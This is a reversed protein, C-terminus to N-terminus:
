EYNNEKRKIEKLRIIVSSSESYHKEINLKTVQSDDDYAVNNLGDLVIKGINDSDPKKCCEDDNILEKIKKKSLSKNPKFSAIISAAIPGYLKKNHYISHYENKIKNEYNVTEIPTYARAFGGRTVVRVRQKGMPNGFIKLKIDYSETFLVPQIKNPNFYFPNIYIM